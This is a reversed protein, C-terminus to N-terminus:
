YNNTASGTPETKLHMDSTNERKAYTLLTIEGIINYTMLWHNAICSECIM